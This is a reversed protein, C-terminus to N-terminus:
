RGRGSLYCIFLWPSGRPYGGRKAVCLAGDHLTPPRLTGWLSWMENGMKKDTYENEVRKDSNM